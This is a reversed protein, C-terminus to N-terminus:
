LVYASPITLGGTAGLSSVGAGQALAAVPLMALVLLTFPAKNPCREGGTTFKM